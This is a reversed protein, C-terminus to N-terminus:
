KLAASHAKGPSKKKIHKKAGGVTQEKTQNGAVESQREAWSKITERGLGRMVEITQEEIADATSFKGHNPGDTIEMLKKFYGKIEPHADLMSALEKIEMDEECTWSVRVVRTVSLFEM